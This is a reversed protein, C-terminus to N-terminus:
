HLIEAPTVGQVEMGHPIVSLVGRKFLRATPGRSIRLMGLRRNRHIFKKARKMRITWPPGVRNHKGATFPIGLNGPPWTMTGGLFGLQKRVEALLELSNAVSCMKREALPVNLAAAIHDAMTTVLAKLQAVCERPNVQWSHRSLDDVHLGPSTGQVSRGHMAYYWMFANAEYTASMSGAVVGGSVYIVAALVSRGAFPTAEM